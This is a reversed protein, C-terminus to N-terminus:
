SHQFSYLSCSEEDAICSWLNRKQFVKPLCIFIRSWGCVISTCKMDQADYSFRRVIKRENDRLKRRRLREKRRTAFWEHAAVWKARLAIKCTTGMESSLGNRQSASWKEAFLFGLDLRPKMQPFLIVEKISDNETLLM